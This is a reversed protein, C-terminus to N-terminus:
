FLKGLNEIEEVSDHSYDNLDELQKPNHVGTTIIVYQHLIRWAHWDEEHKHNVPYQLHEKTTAHLGLQDDIPM